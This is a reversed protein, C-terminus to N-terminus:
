PATLSLLTSLPAGYASRAIRIVWSAAHGQPLVLGGSYNSGILWDALVIV